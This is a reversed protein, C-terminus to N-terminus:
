TGGTAFISAAGADAALDHSAGSLATPGMAGPVGGPGILVDGSNLPLDDALVSGNATMSVLIIALCLSLSSLYRSIREFNKM